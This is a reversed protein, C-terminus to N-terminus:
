GNKAEYLVSKADNIRDIDAEFLDRTYLIEDPDDDDPIYPSVSDLAHRIIDYERATLSRM